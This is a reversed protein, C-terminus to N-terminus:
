KESITEMGRIIDDVSLFTVLSSLPNYTPQAGIVKWSVDKPLANTSHLATAMSALPAGSPGEKCIDAFLIRAQAKLSHQFVKLLRKPPSSLYACEIILIRQTSDRKELAARALLSVQVGTGYTVIAASYPAEDEAKGKNLHHHHLFVCEDFALEGNDDNLHPYPTLFHGDKDADILHKKTLLDTCDVSMVVRGAKAQRLAYRMGRVYDSGNSFCVVDLGPPIVLTNHTHFNGGFIGREFGQLRVLMGNAQRGNSLWHALCAEAFMDAACDLYKSYPIELIPLLGVQAFGMAAGVLTTEDPPFDIVRGPFKTKLGDTCLYYGGHEVDEGIYVVNDQLHMQEEFFRTMHKRLVDVEAKQNEKAKAAVLSATPPAFAHSNSAILDARSHFSFKPESSAQAFAEEALHSIFDFKDLLQKPSLVGARVALFCADQLPNSEEHAAIEEKSLYASQRDSAAHGFRRPLSHLLLMAPKKNHRAHEIAKRSQDYVQLVDKGNAEFRKMGGVGGGSSTFKSMWGQGKLSICLNNDSIAFVLPVKINVHEAYNSLNVSALFHANHTSGNGVSVFSVADKPFIQENIPLLKSALAFGLARGLAPPAQSALTSTVIYDTDHGGISCHKGGTVLELTSCTHARARNLIVEQLSKTRLQRELSLSVHRYHAALADSERLAITCAALQEEGCPGITYYAKGLFASIRAEVHCHFTALGADVIRALEHAQLGTNALDQEIKKVGVDGIAGLKIINSRFAEVQVVEPLRRLEASLIRKM